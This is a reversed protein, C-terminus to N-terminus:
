AAEARRTEAALAHLVESSLRAGETPDLPSVGIRVVTEDGDIEELAVRPKDRMPTEITERLLTEIDVPTVGPRLRARLDVGAPEHLPIVAVSLVVNNPVMIQNEGDSFTTYLLGLSSVVGVIEGALGGGQLRVRDGVRFPRASLLVLGAFLNGFTQQAALGLIVATFAGGVALTRPDLGAVRLAVLVALIITFFRVLFGVTGATGPDLRRFLTPGAARGLDRAFQWGLAVLAAVTAIRVPEDVGFINRRYSYVVLVGAIMPLLLLTQIRARKVARSSLQKALGVERWSHSRTELMRKM